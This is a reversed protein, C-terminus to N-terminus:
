NLISFCAVGLMIYSTYPKGVAVACIGGCYQSDCLRPCTSVLKGMVTDMNLRPQGSSCSDLGCAKGESPPPLVCARM